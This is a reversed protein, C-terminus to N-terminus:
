WISSGGPTTISHVKPLQRWRGHQTAGQEENARTQPTTFHQQGMSMSNFGWQNAAVLELQQLRAEARYRAQQESQLAAQLTALHATLGSMQERLLMAEEEASSASECNTSGPERSPLCKAGPKAADLWSSPSPTGDSCRCNNSPLDCATAHETRQQDAPLGGREMQSSLWSEAVEPAAGQRCHTRYTRCLPCRNTTHTNTEFWKELCKRHFIHKCKPLRRWNNGELPELCVACEGM